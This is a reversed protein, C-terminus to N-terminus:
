SDVGDFNGARGGGARWGGSGTVGRKAMSASAHRM